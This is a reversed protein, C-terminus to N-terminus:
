PDQSLKDKLYTRLSELEKTKSAEVSPIEELISIAEAYAGMKMHTVALNKRLEFSDPIIVLGKQLSAISEKYLGRNGYAGGLNAWFRAESPYFRVAEEFCRIAEDLRGLQSYAMGENNSLMGKERPTRKLTKATDLHKLAERPQQLDVLLAAYNIRAGADDPDNQIAQLYYKGAEEYKRKEHYLEALGGSYFPNKFEVVERHLLAWENQWQRSNLFYSHMGFYAVLSFTVLMGSARRWKLLRDLVWGFFLALFTLPFYLWRMSVLSVASTPVINLVPLLGLTFASVPFLVMRERRYRWVLGAVLALGAFGVAAEWSLLTEPYRVMFSHMGSPALILRIYYMILYPAFWVRQALSHGAEAPSLVAETVYSRILLYPALAMLFPVYELWRNRGEIAKKGVTMDHILFIPLLMLAYEKSLLAMVYFLVSLGLSIKRNEPKGHAYFCFSAISFLSVLINNRAAVWSVVETNAPHLGFLLAAALPVAGGYHKSMLRFVLFCTVLHLFLNVARFSGAHMGWLRYDLYYTLSVLPRYYGTHYDGTADDTSIGDEQLLYSSLSQPAKIFPNRNVLPHDDLIFEGTFTPLYVLTVLLVLIIVFVCNQYKMELFAM